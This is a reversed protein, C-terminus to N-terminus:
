SAVNTAVEAFSLKFLKFMENCLRARELVEGATM